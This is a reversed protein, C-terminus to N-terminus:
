GVRRAGSAAAVSDQSLWGEFFDFLRVEAYYVPRWPLRGGIFGVHGGREVFEPHLRPNAHAISRVDDLVEEPLFPDDIASLLLTPLCIRSLWGIASSQTYYDSADRFGHLPATVADDFAYLTRLGDLGNASVRDPFATHKLM